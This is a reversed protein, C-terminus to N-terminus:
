CVCTACDDCLVVAHTNTSASAAVSSVAVPATLACMLGIATLLKRM